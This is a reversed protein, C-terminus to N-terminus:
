GFEENLQKKNKMLFPHINKKNQNKERTKKNKMFFVNGNGMMACCKAVMEQNM